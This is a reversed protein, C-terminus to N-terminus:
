KFLINEVTEIDEDELTLIHECYYQFNFKEQLRKSAENFKFYGCNIYDIPHNEFLYNIMNELLESMLGQRQYDESIAFSLTIGNKYFLIASRALMSFLGIGFNGVVKGSEKHVIAFTAGHNLCAKRFFALAVNKDNHVSPWGLSHTLEDSKVYAYFDEFDSLKFRRIKLRDTEIDGNELCLAIDLLYKFRNEMIIMENRFFIEKHVNYYM